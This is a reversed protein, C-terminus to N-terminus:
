HFFYCIYLLFLLLLSKCLCRSNDSQVEYGSYCSTISASGTGDDTCASAKSGCTKCTRDAAADSSKYFYGQQSEGPYTYCKSCITSTLDDAMSCTQCNSDCEAVRIYWIFIMLFKLHQILGGTQEIASATSRDVMANSRQQPQEGIRASLINRNAKTWQKFGNCIWNMIYQLLTRKVRTFLRYYIFLYIFLNLIPLVTCKCQWITTDVAFLITEEVTFLHKHVFRSILDPPYLMRFLTSVSAHSDTPELTTHMDMQQASPVPSCAILWKAPWVAMVARQLMM